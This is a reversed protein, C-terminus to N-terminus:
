MSVSEFPGGLIMAHDVDKHQRHVVKDLPATQKHERRQKMERAQQNELILKIAKQLMPDGVGSAVGSVSAVEIPKAEEQAISASTATTLAMALLVMVRTMMKAM